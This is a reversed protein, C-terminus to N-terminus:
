GAESRARGAGNARQAREDSDKQERADEARREDSQWRAVVSDVAQLQRAAGQWQATRGAVDTRAAEVIESQQRIAQELRALFAQYDRLAAVSQGQRARQQFGRAYDGHYQQLDKLKAEAAALRQRADSLERARQEETKGLVQQVPAM